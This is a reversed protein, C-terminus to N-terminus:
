TGGLLVSGSRAQPRSVGLEGEVGRRSTLVTAARGQRLREERVAAQRAALIEPDSRQPVVEATSPRGRLGRIAGFTELVLASLMPRREFERGRQEATQKLTDLFAM